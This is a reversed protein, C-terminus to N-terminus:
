PRDRLLYPVWTPNGRYAKAAARYAGARTVAYGCLYASRTAPVIPAVEMIWLWRHWWWKAARLPHSRGARCVWVSPTARVDTTM